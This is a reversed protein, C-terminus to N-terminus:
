RAASEKLYALLDDINDFSPGGRAEPDYEARLALLRYYLNIKLNHTATTYRMVERIISDILAREDPPSNKKSERLMRRGIRQSSAVSEADRKIIADVTEILKSLTNLAETDVEGSAFAERMTRDLEDFAHNTLEYQGRLRDAHGRMREALRERESILEVADALLAPPLGQTAAVKFADVIVSHVSM